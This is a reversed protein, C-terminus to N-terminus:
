VKTLMCMKADVINELNPIQMHSPDGPQSTEPHGKCLDRSLLKERYRRRRTNRNERRFLISADVSQEEKKKYKM